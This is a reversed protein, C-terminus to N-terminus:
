EGWLHYVAMESKGSSLIVFGNEEISNDTGPQIAIWGTKFKYVKMHGSFWRPFYEYTSVSAATDSLGTHSLPFVPKNNYTWKNAQGGNFESSDVLTWGNKNAFELVSTPTFTNPEDAKWYVARHGGYPGQDSINKVLFKKQYSKWFGAPTAKNCSAFALTLIVTLLLFPKTTM